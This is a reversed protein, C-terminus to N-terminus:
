QIFPWSLKEKHGKSLKNLKSIRSSNIEAYLEEIQKKTMPYSPNVIYCQRAGCHELSDALM